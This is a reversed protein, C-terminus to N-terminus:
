TARGKAQRPTTQSQDYLARSAKLIDAPKTASRLDQVRQEFLATQEADGAPADAAHRRERLTIFPEKLLSYRDARLILDAGNTVLSSKGFAIEESRAATPGFRLFAKWMLVVATLILCLTAALFPPQFALTLLNMAGGFGNLTLDFVVTDTYDDGLLRILSLAAQARAPDALGWNNAIDPEILFVLWPLESSPEGWSLALVRGAHDAILPTHPQNPAAWATVSSPLDGVIGRIEGGTVFRQTPVTDANADDKPDIEVPNNAFTSVNLALPGDAENAWRPPSAGTLAVWGDEIDESVEIDPLSQPPVANWKPLIVLTPGLDERADIIRRLDDPNINKPPALVLLGGTELDSQSRSRTVEFGDAEVLAVLASYGNLGKAAAHAKGNNSNQPGTDGISLFYLIALFACFGTVLVGLASLRSFPSPASRM